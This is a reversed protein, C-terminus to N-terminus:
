STRSFDKILKKIPKDRYDKAKLNVKKIEKPLLEGEYKGDVYGSITLVIIEKPKINIVKLEDKIIASSALRRTSEDYAKTTIIGNKCIFEIEIQRIIKNIDASNYLQMEFEYEFRESNDIDDTETYHGYDGTKMFRNEYNRSYFNLRGKSKIYENLITTVIVGLLAGIIGEYSKIIDMIGNM